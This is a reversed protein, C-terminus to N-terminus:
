EEAESDDSNLVEIGGSDIWLANVSFFTEVATQIIDPCHVDCALEFKPSKMKKHFMGNQKLELSYDWLIEFLQQGQYRVITGFKKKKNAFPKIRTGCTIQRINTLPQGDLCPYHNCNRCIEEESETETDNISVKEYESPVLGKRGALRRKLEIFDNVSKSPSSSCDISYFAQNVGNEYSSRKPRLNCHFTVNVKPVKRNHTKTVKMVTAALGETEAGDTTIVKMGVQNQTNSTLPQGDLCPHHQCNSCLHSIHHSPVDEDQNQYEKALGGCNMSNNKVSDEEPNIESDDKFNECLLDCEIQFRPRNSKTFFKYQRYEKNFDWLVQVRTGSIVAVVTALKGRQNITSGDSAKVRMGVPDNVKESLVKGSICPNSKCNSCTVSDVGQIQSSVNTENILLLLDHAEKAKYRTLQAKHLAEEAAKLALDSAEFAAKSDSYLLALSSM